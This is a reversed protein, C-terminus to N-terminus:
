KCNHQCLKENSLLVLPVSVKYAQTICFGHLFKFSSLLLAKSFLFYLTACRVFTHFTFSADVETFKM